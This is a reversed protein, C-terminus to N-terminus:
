NNRKIKRESILVCSICLLRLDLGRSASQVGADLEWFQSLECRETLAEASVYPGCIHGDNPALLSSAAM